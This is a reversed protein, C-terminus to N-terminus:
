PAAAGPGLFAIASQGLRQEGTLNTDLVDEFAQLPFYETPALVAKGANCICGQLGSSGVAAGVAEAAALLTENRHCSYCCCTLLM